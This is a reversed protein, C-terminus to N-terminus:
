KVAVSVLGLIHNGTVDDHDVKKPTKRREEICLEQVAATAHRTKRARQM